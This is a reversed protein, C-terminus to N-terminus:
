AADAVVFSFSRATLNGDSSNTAVGFYSRGNEDVGIDTINVFWRGGSEYSDLTNSSPTVVPVPQSSQSGNLTVKTLGKGRSESAWNGSGAFKPTGDKDILGYFTTM